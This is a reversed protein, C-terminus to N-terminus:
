RCFHHRGDYGTYYGTSANFSRYRARCHGHWAPTWAQYVVVPAPAVYVPAPAVYVPAPAYYRPQALAGGVIAGAAFGFIGAAAANGGNHRDWRRHGAEAPAAFTLVGLTVALAAATSKMLRM